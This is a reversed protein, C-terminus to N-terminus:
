QNDIDSQFKKQQEETWNEAKFSEDWPAQQSGGEPPPPPPPSSEELDSLKVGPQANSQSDDSFQIVTDPYSEGGSLTAFPNSSGEFVNGVGFSEEEEYKIKPSRIRGIGGGVTDFEPESQPPEEKFAPNSFTNVRASRQIPEVEPVKIERAANEESAPIVGPIPPSALTKVFDTFSRPNYEPRKGVADRDLIAWDYVIQLEYEVLEDSSYDLDGWSITKVLPNVLHWLEVIFGEADIQYISVRQKATSAPDFDADGSLGLGFSNAITSSKEPTTITRWSGGSSEDIKTSIWHGYSAGSTQSAKRYHNERIQSTNHYPYRYGTNNMIQWLFSATDFIGFNREIRQLSKELDGHMDVFKITVPQWKANGPYNFMHNILRYEKTDFEVKPKNLSKVSPIYFDSGFVVIFKNKVKPHIRQSTWWSM